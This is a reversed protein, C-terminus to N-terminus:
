ARGTVDMINKQDVYHGNPRLVPPQARSRTAAWFPPELRAGFGM